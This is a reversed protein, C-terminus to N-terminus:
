ITTEKQAQFDIPPINLYAWNPMKMKQWRRFADLRFDLMFDPEKKKEWITRIVEENLGKEIIETEINSTFGYKYETSM